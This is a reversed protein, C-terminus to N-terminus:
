DEDQDTPELTAQDSSINESSSGHAARQADLGDQADPQESSAFNSEDMTADDPDQHELESPDLELSAIDQTTAQTIM